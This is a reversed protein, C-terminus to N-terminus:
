AAEKGYLNIIEYAWALKDAPRQGAPQSTNWIELNEIRNDHRVGNIHHVNEEPRLARGLHQEMVERHQLVGRKEGGVMITKRLYGQPTFWWAAPAEGRRPGDLNRGMAFRGQHLICRLQCKNGVVASASCDSVICMGSHSACRPSGAELTSVEHCGPYRCERGKIVASLPTLPKGKRIQQYHGGCLGKAVHKEGCGDFSCLRKGSIDRERRTIIITTNHPVPQIRVLMRQMLVKVLYQQSGSRVAM